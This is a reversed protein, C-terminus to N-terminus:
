NRQPPERSGCFGLFSLASSHFAFGSKGHSAQRQRRTDRQGQVGLCLRRIVPIGSFQVADRDGTRPDLAGIDLPRGRDEGGDHELEFRHLTRPVFGHPAYVAPLDTGLKAVSYREDSWALAETLLRRAVGRGRRDARTVVAKVGELAEAKATDIARIRAHPHPSRLVRGILMGPLKLDAGFKARGTVKDLGDHKVPNSGVIKLDRQPDFKSDELITAM